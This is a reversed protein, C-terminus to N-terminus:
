GIVEVTVPVVGAGLHHVAAFTAASLDFRRGTWEAPGWDTVTAEVSAGSPGTVLVRTGCRLERTALTLKGPDFVEGCATTRGEFGPGYWSAPGSLTTGVEAPAMARINSRPPHPARPAPAVAPGPSVAAPAPAPPLAPVPASQLAPAPAAPAPPPPPPPVPPQGVWVVALGDAPLPSGAPPYQASIVEDDSFAVVQVAVGVAAFGATAEAADQGVVDPLRPGQADLRQVIAMAPHPEAAPPPPVPAAEASACATLVLAGLAALARLLLRSRPDM